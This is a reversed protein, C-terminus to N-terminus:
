LNTQPFTEEIVQNLAETLNKNAENYNRHRNLQVQLERVVKIVFELKVRKMDLSDDKKLESVRKILNKAEEIDLENDKNGDFNRLSVIHPIRQGSIHLFGDYMTEIAHLPFKREYDYETLKYLGFISASGVVASAIVKNITSLGM